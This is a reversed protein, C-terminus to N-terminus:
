VPQRSFVMLCSITVPEQAGFPEGAVADSAM